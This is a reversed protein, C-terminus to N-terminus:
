SRRFEAMGRMWAGARLINDDLTLDPMAEIRPLLNREFALLETAFAVVKGHAADIGAAIRPIGKDTMKSKWEELSVRMLGARWKGSTVSETLNMIMKDESAAAKAM